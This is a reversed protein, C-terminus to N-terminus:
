GGNDQGRPTLVAVLLVKEAIGTDKWIWVVECVKGDDIVVEAESAKGFPGMLIRLDGKFISYSM